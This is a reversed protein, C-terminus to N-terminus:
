LRCRATVGPRVVYLDTRPDYSRYRQSCARQHQSLSAPSEPRARRQQQIRQQHRRLNDYRQADLYPSLFDQAPSPAPIALVAAAALLALVSRLGPITEDCAKWAM